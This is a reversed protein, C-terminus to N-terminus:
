LLELERVLVAPTVQRLKAVCGLGDTSTEVKYGREALFKRDVECLESDHEAILLCPKM